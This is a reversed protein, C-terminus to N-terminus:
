TLPILHWHSSIDKPLSKWKLINMPGFTRHAIHGHPLINLPHYTWSVLHGHALNDHPLIDISCSALPTRHNCPLDGHHLTDMPRGHLLIDMPRSSRLHGHLSICLPHIEIPFFVQPAFIDYPQPLIDAPHIDLPCIKYAIGELHCARPNSTWTALWVTLLHWHTLNTHPRTVVLCVTM